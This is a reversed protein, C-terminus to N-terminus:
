KLRQVAEEVSNTFQFLKHLHTLEFIAKATLRVNSIVIEGNKGLAKSATVIAGLGSSNIFSVLAFNLVIKKEGNKIFRLIEKKFEYGVDDDLKHNLINITLVKGIKQHEIKLSM